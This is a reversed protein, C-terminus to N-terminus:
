NITYLASMAEIKKIITDKLSKPSLVVIRDGYQLLWDILGDSVYVSVRVTFANDDHCTFELESGFKDVITELLGNACRLVIMRQEGNYMNFTKKLYDSTDFYKEYSSVQNLPRAEFPTVEAHKMRDLRYNSIADYKEYNGALYYRDSVWLLAYPSVTFKRGENFPARQNVIVRHHYIFSIKKNEAIAHHIADINYYIEENEFKVRPEFNIQKLVKDAQYCSLLGCLKATLEATKKNTIFSAAQVADMLLRVEPVEFDRKAIFYGPHPLRTHIIDFGYTNMLSIDRCVSKRESEIGERKLLECLQVVSLPHEEDSYEKLLRLLELFRVKTSGNKVLCDGV